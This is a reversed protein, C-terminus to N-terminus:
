VRTFGLKLLLRLMPQNSQEVETRIESVGLKLLMQIRRKTLEAGYGKGQLVKPVGLTDLFGILIENQMETRIQGAAVPTGAQYMVLCDGRKYWGEAIDLEFLDHTMPPPGYADSIVLLFDNEIVSAVAPRVEFEPCGPIIKPFPTKLILNVDNNQGKLSSDPM